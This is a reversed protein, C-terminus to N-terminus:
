GPAVEIYVLAVAQEWGEDIGGVPMVDCLQLWGVEMEEANPLYDTELNSEAIDGGFRAVQFNNLRHRVELKM